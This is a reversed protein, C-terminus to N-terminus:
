KNYTPSSSKSKSYIIIPENSLSSPLQEFNNVKIQYDPENKITLQIDRNNENNQNKEITNDATQNPPLNSIRRKGAKQEPLNEM